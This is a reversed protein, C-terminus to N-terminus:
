QLKGGTRGGIAVRRRLWTQQFEEDSLEGNLWQIAAQTAVLTINQVQGDSASVLMLLDPESAIRPLLRALEMALNQELLLFEDSDGKITTSYAVALGRQGRIDALEVKEPKAGAALLVERVAQMAAEDTLLQEASPTLRAVREECRRLVETLAPVQEEGVRELLWLLHPLAKECQDQSVYFAALFNRVLLSNGSMALAKLLYEEALKEEGQRHLAEGLVAYLISSREGRELAQEATTRAADTNGLFLQVLATSVLAETDDPRLVQWRQAARLAEGLEGLDLNVEFLAQYYTPDELAFSRIEELVAKAESAQDNRAYAVALLRADAVSRPWAQHARQLYAVAQAYDEECLYSIGVMRMAVVSYPRAALWEEALARSEQCREQDNLIRMRVAKVDWREPPAVTEALDQYQEAEDLREQLVLVIAMCAYGDPYPTHPQNLAMMQQCTGEAGDWDRKAIAVQNLFSLTWANDRQRALAPQALALASDADGTMDLEARARELHWAFFTPELQIAREFASTAEDWNHLMQETNGLVAWALALSSDLEVARQAHERAADLEYVSTLVDALAAHALADDPAVAVARQATEKAEDFRHASQQSWALYALAASNEPTLRTATEAAALAQQWYQPLFLYVRVLGLYAPLYSPDAAIADIFAAEAQALDSQLYSAEGDTVLQEARQRDPTALPRPTATPTVASTATIIPALTATPAPTLMAATATPRVLIGGVARTATATAGPSAMASPSAEAATATPLPLAPPQCAAVLWLLPLFVLVRQWCRLLYMKM